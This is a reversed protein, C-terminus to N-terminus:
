RRTNCPAQGADLTAGSAADLFSWGFADERLDLRLVGPHAFIARATTRAVPLAGSTEGGTGVTLAVTGNQMDPEGDAGLPLTREYFHNHGNLVVSAGAQELRRFLAVANERGDRAQLSHAPRHYFALVCAEPSAALTGALWEAQPSGPGAETESNLSLILWNGHHVAYFGRDDPGARTGWYQYYGFAEPSNYEHNGPTPLTRGRNGKWIPDFCDSFEVPKGSSYVLDGLALIPADPWRATLRVTPVAPATAPEFASAIGFLDASVPFAAALGPAEDCNAIDGVALLTLADGPGAPARNIVEQPTAAGETASATGTVGLEYAAYAPWQSEIVAIFLLPVLVAALIASLRM